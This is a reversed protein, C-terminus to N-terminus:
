NLAAQPELKLSTAKYMLDGEPVQILIYLPDPKPVDKEPKTLKDILSPAQRLSGFEELKLVVAVVLM